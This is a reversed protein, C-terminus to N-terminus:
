HKNTDIVHKQYTKIRQRGVDTLRQIQERLELLDWVVVM